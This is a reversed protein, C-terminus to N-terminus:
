AGGKDGDAAALVARCQKCCAARIRRLDKKHEAKIERLEKRHNSCSRHVISEVYAVDKAAGKMSMKLKACEEKWHELQKNLKWIETRLNEETKRSHIVLDRYPDGYNRDHEEGCCGM